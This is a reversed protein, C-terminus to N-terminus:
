YWESLIRAIFPVIRSDSRFTNRSVRMCNCYMHFGNGRKLLYLLWLRTLLMASCFISSCWGIMWLWLSGVIQCSTLGCKRRWAVSGCWFNSVWQDGCVCVCLQKYQEKNEADIRAENWPVPHERKVFQRVTACLSRICKIESSYDGVKLERKTVCALNTLVIQRTPTM